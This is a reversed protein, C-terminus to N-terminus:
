LLNRIEFKLNRIATNLIKQLINFANFKEIPCHL